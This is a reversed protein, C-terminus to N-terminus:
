ACAGKPSGWKNGEPHIGTLNFLEDWNSEHMENCMIRDFKWAGERYTELLAKQTALHLRPDQEPTRGADQM